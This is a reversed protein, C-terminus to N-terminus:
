LFLDLVFVLCPDLFIQAGNEYANSKSGTLPNFLSRQALVIVWLATAARLVACGNFTIPCHDLGAGIVPERANSKTPSAVKV